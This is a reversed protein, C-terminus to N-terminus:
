VIEDVKLKWSRMAVQIKEEWDGAVVYCDEEKVYLNEPYKWMQLIQHM